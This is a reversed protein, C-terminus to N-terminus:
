RGPPRGSGGAASRGVPPRPDGGGAAQAGPKPTGPDRNDGTGDNAGGGQQQAGGDPKGGLSLFDILREGRSPTLLENIRINNFAMRALEPDSLDPNKRALIEVVNTLGLTLEKADIELQDKPNEDISPEVFDIVLEGAPVADVDPIPRIELTRGILDFLDSEGRLFHPRVRLNERLVAAMKLKKAYGSEPGGSTESEVTIGYKTQISKERDRCMNSWQELEPALDLVSATGGDGLMVPRSGGMVQDAPFNKPDGSIALQKFGTDKARQNQITKLVCVELTADYLDDGIGECHYGNIPLDIEFKAAPLRGLLNPTVEGIPKFENDVKVHATATFIHIVSVVKGGVAEEAFYYFARAEAENEYDAVIGATGPTYVLFSLRGSVAEEEAKANVDYTVNPRVWVCSHARALREVKQLVVDLHSVKALLDFTEGEDDADAEDVDLYELLQELEADGAETPDGLEPALARQALEEVSAPKPVAPKDSAEDSDLKLYRRPKTDYLASLKAVIEVLLNTSTHPTLKLNAFTIPNFSAQLLDLLDAKFKNGMMRDKRKAQERMAVAEPTGSFAKVSQIVEGIEGALNVPSGGGGDAILSTGSQFAAVTKRFEAVTLFRM